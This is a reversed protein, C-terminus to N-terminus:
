AARVDKLVSGRLGLQIARRELKEGGPLHDPDFQVRVESKKVAAQWEDESGYLRADFSSPVAQQLLEDFFQRRLRIALVVEQNSARGWDSRYMMWLFNPKIWSMRGYGFGDGFYGSKIAFEGIQPCYAQYVIMTADDFQATIHRGTAPLSSLQEAYPATILNVTAKSRTSDKRCRAGRKQVFDARQCNARPRLDSPSNLIKGMAWITSSGGGDLEVAEVCGYEKVLAAMEPYTMGISFLQRGDVVIFYLYNDNWGIM